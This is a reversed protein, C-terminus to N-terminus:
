MDNNTQIQGFTFKLDKWNVNLVHKGFLSTENRGDM